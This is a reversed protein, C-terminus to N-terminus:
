LVALLELCKGLVTEAAMEQLYHQLKAVHQIRMRWMLDHVPVGTQYAHM